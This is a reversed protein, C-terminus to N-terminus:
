EEKAIYWQGKYFMATDGTDVWHFTSANQVGETPLETEDAFEDTIGCYEVRDCARDMRTMDDVTKAM